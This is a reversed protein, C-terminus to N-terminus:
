KLKTEVRDMIIASLERKTMLPLEEISGDRSLIKIINTDGQFGAGPKSVDNAVILDLNKKELKSQAYQLLNQTEAAFGVLVQNPKKLGGM